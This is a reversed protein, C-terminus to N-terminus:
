SGIKGGITVVKSPVTEGIVAAELFDAWAQLARAKETRYASRNYVGAVDQKHGSV